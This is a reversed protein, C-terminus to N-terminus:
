RSAIIQPVEVQWMVTPRSRETQDTIHSDRDSKTLTLLLLLLLLLLCMEIGGYPRLKLPLPLM